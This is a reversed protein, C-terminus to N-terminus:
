LSPIDLLLVFADEKVIGEISSAESIAIADRRQLTQSGIEVAGGILFFFQENSAHKPSYHFTSGANFRGLSIWADQQIYIGGEYDPNVITTFKDSELEYRKQDYRPKLGQERPYIWIQLLSCAQTDSANFESHTIGTGASMVQVEGATIVETHGMSDRHALSGELPITIIEMNDHPHTGFGMKPDITDDNLVRLAGVNMRNRNFYSAFSFSHYTDLWGHSVHGRESSPHLDIKM